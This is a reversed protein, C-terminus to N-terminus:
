RAVVAHFYISAETNPGLNQQRPGRYHLDALCEIGTLHHESIVRDLWRGTCRGRQFGAHSNHHMHDIQLLQLFRLRELLVTREFGEALHFHFQRPLHKM